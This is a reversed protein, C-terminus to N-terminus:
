KSESNEMIKTIRWQQAISLLNNVVWYLVLGSPFFAFFATFIFPLSMMIKAQMPDPPAPNLKQQAFMSIGMIVPLVFFPDKASLNNIWLLFPADRLEVSELVVWYLAIFVPIQVVIPLCGGLPNIKERKYLEMMAKNFQEKDEGYREKIVQLRPALKRMGAMSKYSAASLQYFALKIIITLFIIAWGWNGLLDYLKKLLWFLPKAIVTLWGYDTVLELGPATKELDGQLKPGLWLRGIFNTSEGPEIIVEPGYTGILFLDESVQKSYFHHLEKKDPIIATLFHHQLMSVWGGKVDMDLNNTKLEKFDIKRFKNEPTYIAAGTYTYIFASQDDKTSAKRLIQLYERGTWVVKDNNNVEQRLQVEYSGRKFTFIKNVKVNNENQWHLTVSLENNNNELEFDRINSHFTAKHTPANDKNSALLGSQLNYINNSNKSLLEFPVIRETESKPYALLNVQQISGGELDIFVKLLDTTVQILNGSTSSAKTEIPLYEPKIENGKASSTAIPKDINNNSEHIFLKDKSDNLWTTWIMMGLLMLSVSLIIRYNDM